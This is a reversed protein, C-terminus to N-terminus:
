GVPFQAPDFAAQETGFAPMWDAQPLDALQGLVVAHQSEIPLITAAPGAVVWDLVGLARLYTAAAGEEVGYLVTLVQNQDTAANLQPVVADVVAQNPTFRQLDEPILGRLAEAHEAHHRGFMRATEAATTDLRADDVAVQYAAAAALELSEAFLVLDLDAPALEPASGGDAQAAVGQALAVGSVTVAGFAMAGLGLNRVFRRRSDVLGPDRDDLHLAALDDQITRMGERHQEDVEDVLRRIRMSM